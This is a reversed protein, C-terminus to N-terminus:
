ISGEKKYLTRMINKSLSGSVAVARVFPFISILRSFFPLKRFFPQAGSERFLRGKIQEHINKRIGIYDDKQFCIKNEVLENIESKVGNDSEGNMCLNELEDITLPHNFIDFYSLCKLVRSNM